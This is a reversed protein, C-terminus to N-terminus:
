IQRNKITRYIALLLGAFIVALATNECMGFTSCGGILGPYAAIAHAMDTFLEANDAVSYISHGIVKMDYLGHLVFGFDVANLVQLCFVTGLSALFSYTGRRHRFANVGLLCVAMPVAPALVCYAPNVHAYTTLIDVFLLLDTADAGAISIGVAMCLTFPLLLAAPMVIFVYIFYFATKEWGTAPLATQILLGNESAFVLPGFALAVYFLPAMILLTSIGHGSASQVMFLVGAVFSIVAYDALLRWVTSAHLRTVLWLRRMSFKDTVTMLM